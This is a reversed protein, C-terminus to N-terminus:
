LLFFSLNKQKNLRQAFLILYHFTFIFSRLIPLTIYQISTHREQTVQLPYYTVNVNVSKYHLSSSSLVIPTAANLIFLFSYYFHIVLRQSNCKSAYQTCNVVRRQSSCKSAYQTCKVRHIKFLCFRPYNTFIPGNLLGRCNNFPDFNDFLKQKLRITKGLAIRM